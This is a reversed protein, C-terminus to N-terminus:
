VSPMVTILQILYNAMSIVIYVLGFNMALHSWIKREDAVFYHISVCFILFSIALLISPIITMLNLPKFNKAYVEIGKWVEFDFTTILAIVLFLTFVAVAIASCAAIKASIKKICNM